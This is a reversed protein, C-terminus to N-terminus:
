RLVFPSKHWKCCLSIPKQLRSSFHKSRPVFQTKIYLLRLKTKSPKFLDPRPIDFILELPNHGTSNSVTWELWGEIHSLLEPLSKHTELCYNHCFTNTEKICRESTNAQPHRIASFMVDIKMGALKNKGIRVLLSLVMTASFAHQVRWILWMFTTQALRLQQLKELPVVECIEFVLQFM